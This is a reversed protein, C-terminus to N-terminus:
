VEQIKAGLQQMNLVFDGFTKAICESGEIESSGEAGLSAVALSMCLRHDHHSNLLAGRLKRPKILLGDELIQVDGGMKNLEEATCSLRNCEKSKAIAGNFLRTPTKAFCALTALIPIADIIENVDITLGQLHDSKMVRLFDKRIEFKAGMKELIPILKKDGQRDEFDLNQIELESQTILAAAIPFAASSFDGPVKYEFGKITARGPIKYLRYESQSYAIGLKDFWDLTMEVWPIEGPNCVEIESSGDAFATAILLSSVFQSDAGELVVRGPKLPGKIILPAMGDGRMSEISVNLQKLANILPLMPRQHRISHDGTIVIPFCGLAAIASCFRLVIGSNGAHIVAETKTVQGSVGEIKINESYEIKAGFSRCAAVMADTDPSKLAEHITSEGEALAAFLIARLTQSKSAPIRIAGQLRSNSSLIKKIM